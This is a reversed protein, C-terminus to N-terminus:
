YNTLLYDPLYKKGSTVTEIANILEKRSPEYFVYGHIGMDLLPNVLAFSRYLHLVIIRIASDQQRIPLIIQKYSKEVGMLDVLLLLPKPLFQVQDLKDSGLVPIHLTHKFGNEIVRSLSGAKLIQDSIIAIQHKEAKM